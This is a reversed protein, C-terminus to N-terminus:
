VLYKRSNLSKMEMCTVHFTEWKQHDFRGSQTRRERHQNEDNAVSFHPRLLIYWLGSDLGNEVCAARVLV